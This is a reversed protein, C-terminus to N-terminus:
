ASTGGSVLWILYGFYGVLLVVGQWRELTHKKGIFMALFLFFTAAVAVLIDTASGSSVPLTNISSSLGLIWFVNFINSGVVNGIAIDFHRRYAAMVSTLLEPLSTGIAVVTLGIVRESIGALSALTVASDVTLKGGLVLGAIGAAVFGVARWPNMRDVSEGEGEVKSIGFTYYLFIIFFALLVLGDILDL